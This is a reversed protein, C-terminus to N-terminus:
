PDARLKNIAAEVSQLALDLEADTVDRNEAAAKALALQYQQLQVTAELALNILLAANGM